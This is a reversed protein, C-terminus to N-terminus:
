LKILIRRGGLHVCLLDDDADSTYLFCATVWGDYLGNFYNRASTATYPILTSVAPSIDSTVSTATDFDYNVVGQNTIHNYDELSLLYIPDYRNTDSGIVLLQNNFTNASYFSTYYRPSYVTTGTGTEIEIYNQAFFTTNIDFTNGVWVTRGATLDLVWLEGSLIETDFSIPSSGLPVVTWIRSRFKWTSNPFLGLLSLTSAQTNGAPVITDDWRLTITDGTIPSSVSSAQQLQFYQFAM